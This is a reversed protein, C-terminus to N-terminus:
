HMKAAKDKYPIYISVFLISSVYGDLIACFLSNLFFFFFIPGEQQM